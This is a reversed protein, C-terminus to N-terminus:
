QQPNVKKVADSAGAANLKNSADVKASDKKYSALKM